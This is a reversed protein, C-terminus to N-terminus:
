TKTSGNVLQVNSMSACVSVLICLTLGAIFANLRLTYDYVLQLVNYQLVSDKGKIASHRWSNFMSHLKQNLMRRLMRESRAERQRKLEAFYDYWAYFVESMSQSRMRVAARRIIVDRRKEEASRQM